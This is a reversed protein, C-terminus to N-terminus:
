SDSSVGYSCTGALAKDPIISKLPISVIYPFLSVYLSLPFLNSPKSSLGHSVNQSLAVNQCCM